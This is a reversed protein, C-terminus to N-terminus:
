DFPFFLIFIFYVSWWNSFFVVPLLWLICLLYSQCLLTRLLACYCVTCPPHATFAKSKKQLCCITGRELHRFHCFILWLNLWILYFLHSCHHLILMWGGTSSSVLVDDSKAVFVCVCVSPSLSLSCAHPTPPVNQAPTLHWLLARWMTLEKQVGWLTEASKVLQKEEEPKLTMHIVDTLGSNSLVCPISLFVEDKVGHLGQFSLSGIITVAAYSRSGLSHSPEEESGWRSWHPCPTCKTYTRQSAKWWTPWLCVSPGPLTARWSSSRMPGATCLCVSVWTNRGSGSQFYDM